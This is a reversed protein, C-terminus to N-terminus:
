RHNLADPAPTPPRRFPAVCHCDLSAGGVIQFGSHNCDPSADRAASAQLIQEIHAARCTRSEAADRYRSTM